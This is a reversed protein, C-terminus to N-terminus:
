ERYIFRPPYGRGMIEFQPDGQSHVALISQPGLPEVAVLDCSGGNRECGLACAYIELVAGAVCYARTTTALPLAVELIRSRGIQQLRDKVAGERHTFSLSEGGWDSLLERVGSDDIPFPDTTLWIKGNRSGLEDQHYPSAAYLQAAFPAEVDGAATLRDLRQGILELNMPQLGSERLWAVEGDTLRTFHWARITRTEMVRGLEECFAYYSAGYPNALMPGRRTQAERELWIQRGTNWYSAILEAEGELLARLEPDYTEIDWVDIPPDVTM